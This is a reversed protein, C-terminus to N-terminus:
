YADFEAELLISALIARAVAFRYGTASGFERARM